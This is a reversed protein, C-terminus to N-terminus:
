DCILRDFEEETYAAKKLKEGKSNYYVVIHYGAEGFSKEGFYIPVKPSGLNMVDSYVPPVIEGYQRDFVGYGEEKRFMLSPNAGQTREFSIVEELYINKSYINLLSWLGDSQVLVLSDTWYELQDYEPDLVYEGEINALGYAGGEKAIMLDSSYPTAEEDFGKGIIKREILNYYIFSGNHIISVLGNKETGIADYKYSFITQGKKNVLGYKGRNYTSFYEDSVYGLRNTEYQFMLEGDKYLWKKGKREIVLFHAKSHSSNTLVHLEDSQSFYVTMKNPFIAIGEEERFVIVIDHGLLKVSDIGLLPESALKKPTVTWKDFRRTALWEENQLVEHYDSRDLRGIVPDYIMNTSDLAFVWKDFKTNIRRTHWPSIVSLTSDILVEENEAYALLMGNRLLEVEEYATATLQKFTQNQVSEQTGIYIHDDKNLIWYNGLTDIDDFILKVVEQGLYGLLGVGDKTKAIFYKRGSWLLDEYQPRVLDMGSWHFAGMGEENKYIVVGNSHETWNDTAAIPLPQGARNIFALSSDTQVLLIKNGLNGCLHNRGVAAYTFANLPQIDASVFNFRQGDMMPVITEENLKELVGVSDIWPRAALQRLEKYIGGKWGYLVDLAMKRVSVVTFLKAVRELGIQDYNAIFHECIDNELQSRYPTTPHEDLFKIWNGVGKGGVKDQYILEHYKNEAKEFQHADPYNDVFFKYAQWTDQQRALEFALEDRLVVANSWDQAKPYYAIYYNYSDVSQYQSLMEFAKHDIDRNLQDFDMLSLGSKSISKLLDENEDIPLELAKVMQRHARHIDFGDFGAHSLLLADLYLVVPSLSDKECAKLQIQRAKEYDGQELLKLYPKIKQSWAACSLLILLSTFLLRM